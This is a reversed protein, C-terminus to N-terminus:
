FADTYGEMIEDIYGDFFSVNVLDKYSYFVDADLFHGSYDTVSVGYKKVIFLILALASTKDKKFFTKFDLDQSEYKIIVDNVFNESNRFIKLHVYGSVDIFLLLYYGKEIMNIGGNM